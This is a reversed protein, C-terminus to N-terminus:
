FLPEVDRAGSGIVDKMVSRHTPPGDLQDQLSLFASRMLGQWDFDKRAVLAESLELKASAGLKSVSSEPPHALTITLM